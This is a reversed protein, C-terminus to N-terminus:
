QLRKQLKNSTILENLEPSIAINARKHAKALWDDVVEQGKEQAVMQKLTDKIESLGYFGKNEKATVKFIHFGYPSVIVESTIGGVPLKDVKNAFFKDLKGEERFGVDGGNKQGTKALDESYENALKAFDEGSRARQLIDQALKAKQKELDTVQKVAEDETMKPNEKRLRVKYALPEETVDKTKAIFIQSLRIRAEHRLEGRHKEYYDSIQSDTTPSESKIKDIQRLCLDNDIIEEKLEETSIGSIQVLRKYQPSQSVETYKNMAQKSFGNEKAAQSLLRRSVLERLLGEEILKGAMKFALGIDFVQDQFQNKTMHNEVLMKNFGKTGGAQMKNASSILHKKEDLSLAIGEEHAKQILNNALQPNTALQAQMQEQETKFQRRYDGVTIPDGDVTCIIVSNALVDIRTTQLKKALDALSKEDLRMDASSLNSQASQAGSVIGTTKMDANIETKSAQTKTSERKVESSQVVKSNKEKTESSIKEPSCSSLCMVNAVIGLMLVFYRSKVKCSWKVPKLSMIQWCLM